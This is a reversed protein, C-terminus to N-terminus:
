VVGMTPVRTQFMEGVSGVEFKPAGVAWAEGGSQIELWFRKACVGVDGPALQREGGAYKLTVCPIQEVPMTQDADAPQGAPFRGWSESSELQTEGNEDVFVGVFCRCHPGFSGLDSIGSKKPNGTVYNMAYPVAYGAALCDFLLDLTEPWFTFCTHGKVAKIWDAPTGIGPAAYTVAMREVDDETHGRFLDITAVGFDHIARMADALIAGDGSGCRDKGIEHRALSYVPAFAIEIPKLPAFHDAIAVDLSTQVGRTTGRSVCTGRRQLFPRRYKEGLLTRERDRLFVGTIGRSKMREWTGPLENAHRATFSSGMAADGREIRAAVVEQVWQPDSIWGSIFGVPLDSM